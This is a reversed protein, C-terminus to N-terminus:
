NVPIVLNMRFSWLSILHFELVFLFIWFVLHFNRQSVRKLLFSLQKLHYHDEQMLTQMVKM